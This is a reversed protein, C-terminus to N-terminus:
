LMGGLAVPVYNRNRHLWRQVPWRLLVPANPHACSVLFLKLLRLPYHRLLWAFQWAAWTGGASNPDWILNGLDSGRHNLQYLYYPELVKRPVGNAEFLKLLSTAHLVVTLAHYKAWSFREAPMSYICVLPERLAGALKGPMHRAILLAHPYSNRVSTFSPGSLPQPFDEEWWQRRTISAYMATFDACPGELLQEFPVVGMLGRSRLQFDPIDEVGGECDSAAPRRDSSFYGVNLGILDIEPSRQLMDVVRDVARVALVDDDGLLWVYAGRALTGAVFTINGLLGINEVQRHRRLQFRQSWKDLMAATQDTSANDSIVVEVCESWRCTQPLISALCVDLLEARNFTPICLSLLPPTACNM